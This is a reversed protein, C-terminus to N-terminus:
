EEFEMLLSNHQVQDGVHMYITKIKGERNARIINKMKMAELVCLEQGYAVQEGEIVKIDVIVGPLPAHVM